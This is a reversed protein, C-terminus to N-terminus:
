HEILAAAGGSVPTYGGRRLVRIIKEWMRQWHVAKIMAILSTEFEITRYDFM